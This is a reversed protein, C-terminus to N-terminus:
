GEPQLSAPVYARTNTGHQIQMAEKGGPTMTRNNDRKTRTETPSTWAVATLTLRWSMVVSLEVCIAPNAGNECKALAAYQLGDRVLFQSQPPANV